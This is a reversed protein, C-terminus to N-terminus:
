RRQWQGDVEQVVAPLDGQAGISIWRGSDHNLTISRERVKAPDIGVRAAWQRIREDQQRSGVVYVDFASNSAQLQKVREDCPPCGDRVFVALRSSGSNPASSRAPVNAGPLNVPQMGPYLRKWAEDYARQYALTKGVRRSEAQVQLEAYRRQEQETRAEIGLATLPDLNPSYTGLPGQMLQQYRQWEETRLGWDQARREELSTETSPQSQSPLTRASTTPGNQAQVALSCTIVLTLLAARLHPIHSPTLPM